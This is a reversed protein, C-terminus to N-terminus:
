GLLAKLRQELQAKLPSAFYIRSEGRIITGCGKPREVLHHATDAAIRDVLAVLEALEVETIEAAAPDGGSYMGTNSQEPTIPVYRLHRGIEYRNNSGDVYIM